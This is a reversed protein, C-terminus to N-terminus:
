SILEEELKGKKLVVCVHFSPEVVPVTLFKTYSLIRLYTKKIKSSTNLQRIHSQINLRMYSM